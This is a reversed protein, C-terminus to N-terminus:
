GVEDLNPMTWNVTGFSDGTFKGDIILAMVFGLATVKLWCGSCVGYFSCLLLTWVALGM